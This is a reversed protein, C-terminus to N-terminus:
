KQLFFDKKAEEYGDTTPAYKFHLELLDINKQALKILNSLIPPFTFKNSKSVEFLHNILVEENNISIQNVIIKKLLCNWDDIFSHKYFFILGDILQEEQYQCHNYYLKLHEKSRDCGKEIAMEYYKKMLLYCGENCYYHGLRFMAKNYGKEVAMEYYKKMTLFDKEVLGYYRGFNYMAVENEQEIALGYYYKAMEYDKIKEYYLALNNMAGSINGTEIALEYYYKMKRCDTEVDEYYRGLWYSAIAIKSPNTENLLFRHLDSQIQDFDKKSEEYTCGEKLKKAFFKELENLNM